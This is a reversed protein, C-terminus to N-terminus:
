KWSVRGGATNNYISIWTRGRNLEIANDESDYFGLEDTVKARRWTAKQITGNQFIYAEGSGTTTHDYWKPQSSRPVTSAKMAIVVDTNIQTEKGNKAIQMHAGGSVHYRAYNNTEAIYKWRVNYSDDGSMVVTVTTANRKEPEIVTDPQIRKFGNFKSQTWGKATSWEKLHDNDTYVNHPGYRYYSGISNIRFVYQDEVWGADLNRYGSTNLTNIANTAGGHHVYGCNYPRALHVFTQRASRIPGVWAPLEDKYVAMFRTIGAEAVAEYVVGAKNLGSQPRADVSNEIMICTAEATAIKKNTSELGTLPSYYVEDAVAEETKSGDVLNEILSPKFFWLGLFVIAAIVILSVFIKAITGKISKQRAEKKREKKREKKVSKKVPVDEEDVGESDNIFDDIDSDSTDEDDDEPQEVPLDEDFEDQAESEEKTFESQKYLNVLTKDEEDKKHVYIKSGRFPRKYGDM